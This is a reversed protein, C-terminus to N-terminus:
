FLCAKVKESFSLKRERQAEGVESLEVGPGDTGVLGEENAQLSSYELVGRSAEVGAGDGLRSERRARRIRNRLCVWFILLACLLVLVTGLVVFIVLTFLGQGGSSKGPIKDIKVLLNLPTNDESDGVGFVFRMALKDSHKQVYELSPVVLGDQSDLDYRIVTNDWMESDRRFFMSVTQYDDLDRMLVVQTSFGLRYVQDNYRSPWPTEPGYKVSQSLEWVKIGAEADRDEGFKIKVVMADNLDWYHILFTIKGLDELRDVVPSDSGELLRNRYVPKEEIDSKLRIYYSGLNQYQVVCHAVYVGQQGSEFERCVMSLVNNIYPNTHASQTVKPTPTESSSNFLLETMKLVSFQGGYDSSQQAMLRISNKLRLVVIPVLSDTLINSSFIQTINTKNTKFLLFSGARNRIMIIPHSASHPKFSEIYRPKFWLKLKQTLNHVVEMEPNLIQLTIEVQFNRWNVTKTFELLTLITSNEPKYFYIDGIIFKQSLQQLRLVRSDGNYVDFVCNQYIENQGFNQNQSSKTGISLVKVAGSSKPNSHNNSVSKVREDSGFVDKNMPLVKIIMKNMYSKLVTWNQNPQRALTYKKVLRPKKRSLNAVKVGNVLEFSLPRGKYRVFKELPNFGLKLVPLRSRNAELVLEFDYFTKEIFIQYTATETFCHSKQGKKAIGAEFELTVNMSIEEGQVRNMMLPMCDLTHNLIYKTSNDTEDLVKVVFFGTSYINQGTALDSSPLAFVDLIKKSSNFEQRFRLTDLNTHSGHHHYSGYAKFLTLIVLIENNEQQNIKPPNKSRGVVAVHEKNLKFTKTITSIGFDELRRDYLTFAEREVWYVAQYFKDKKPSIFHTSDSTRSLDYDNHLLHTEKVYVTDNKGDDHRIVVFYFNVMETTKQGSDGGLSGNQTQDVDINSRFDDIIKKPVESRSKILFQAWEVNLDSLRDRQYFVQQVLEVGLQGRVEKTKGDITALHHSKYDNEGFEGVSFNCSTQSCLVLFHRDSEDILGLQIHKYVSKLCYVSLTQDSASNKDPEFKLQILCTKNSATELVGYYFYNTKNKRIVEIIDVKSLVLKFKEHIAIKARTLCKLPRSSFKFQIACLAWIELENTHNNIVLFSNKVVILKETKPDIGLQSNVDIEEGQYISIASSLNSPDIQSLKLKTPNGSIEYIEPGKDNYPAKLFQFVSKEKLALKQINIKVSLGEFRSKVRLADPVFKVGTQNQFEKMTLEPLSHHPSLMSTNMLFPTRRFDGFRERRFIKSNNLYLIQTSCAVVCGDVSNLTMKVAEKPNIYEFFFKSTKQSKFIALVPNFIDTHIRVLKFDNGPKKTDPQTSQGSFNLNKFFQCDQNEAEEATKLTCLIVMSNNQDYVAFSNSQNNKFDTSSNSLIPFQLDVSISRKIHDPPSISMSKYEILQIPAASDSLDLGFNFIRLNVEPCTLSTKSTYVVHLHKGIPLYSLSSNETANSITSNLELNREEFKLLNQPKQDNLQQKSEYISYNAVYILAKTGNDTFGIKKTVVLTTHNESKKLYIGTLSDFELGGIWGIKNFRMGSFEFVALGKQGKGECALFSIGIIQTQFLESCRDSRVGYDMAPIGGYYGLSILGSTFRYYEISLDCNVVGVVGKDVEIADLVCDKQQNYGGLVSLNREFAQNTNDSNIATFAERSDSASFFLSEAWETDM